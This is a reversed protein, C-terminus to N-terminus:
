AREPSDALRAQALMRPRSLGLWMVLGVLATAVMLSGILQVRGWLEVSAIVTAISGMIMNTATILGSVSGADTEHQGLMLFTSPPRVCGLAVATPFFTIMFAWPGRVGILLVLVGSAVCTVFCATIIATRGFRRSLLIYSSPGLAIGVGFFAFFFSYIQGSVGFTDEFIYSSSAIFLLAVLPFLSFNFLLQAFTRNKLVVGLRKLSALPNGTLRDRVTERYVIAAALVLLGCIGQAVFTGRWSTFRLIFAGIMPALLPALITMSQVVALTVERKRGRYVDKVIATAVTSAAGAGLAQFIRFAMLQFVDSSIACLMGAAAYIVLGVLVVPKRGFRDSLPGSVLLSLAYFAFFVTLTLNVQYAPAAFHVTMKPLAPLYLDTSLSPFASLAALFVLLGKNKLFPQQTPEEYNM